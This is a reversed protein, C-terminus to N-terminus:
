CFCTAYKDERISVELVSGDGIPGSSEAYIPDIKLLGVLLELVRVDEDDCIDARSM